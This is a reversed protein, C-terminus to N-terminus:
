AHSSVSVSMTPYWLSCTVVDEFETGYENLFRVYRKHVVKYTVLDGLGTTFKLGRQFVRQFVRMKNESWKWEVVVM